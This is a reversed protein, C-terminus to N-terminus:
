RDDTVEAPLPVLQTWLRRATAFEGRDWAAEGLAWLADDGYSSLFATRLIRQLAAERRTVEWEAFWERALPDLRARYDARAVAPLRALLINARTAVNAYWATGGAEGARIQTLAASHTETLQQLIELADQWRGAAAFEEVQGLSKAVTTDAPVTAAERFPRRVPPEQAVLGTTVSVAFLILLGRRM